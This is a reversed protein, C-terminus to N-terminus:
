ATQDGQPPNAPNRRRGKKRLNMEDELLDRGFNNLIYAALMAKRVENDTGGDATLKNIYELAEVPDAQKSLVVAMRALRDLETFELETLDRLLRMRQRVVTGDIMQKSLKQLTAYAQELRLAASQQNADGEIPQGLKISLNRVVTPWALGVVIAAWANLASDAVSAVLIYILAAGLFNVGLLLWAGFTRLARWSENGFAGILEILGSFLGILGALLALQLWQWMM